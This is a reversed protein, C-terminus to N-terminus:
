ESNAVFQVHTGLLQIVDGNRIEISKSGVPSGNVSLSEIGEVVALYYEHSRRSIAIIQKGSRGITTFAKELVVEQGAKPGDIVKILANANSRESEHSNQDVHDQILWEQSKRDVKEYRLRYGVLEAVDGIQLFHKRVPQGNVQTGNTSNLDELFSDGGVTVIVAHEASVAPDDILIDSARSRGITMREKALPIERLVVGEAALIIKAM